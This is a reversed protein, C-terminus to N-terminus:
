RYQAKLQGWTTPTSPVICWSCGTGANLGANAEDDCVPQLAILCGPDDGAAYCPYGSISPLNAERVRFWMEETTFVLIGYTALVIAEAGPLPSALGVCFDPDTSVNIADGVLTWGMEFNGSPVSYDVHCEWGSVGSPATCETLVLYMTVPGGIFDHCVVLGDADFYMGIRDPFPDLQAIANSLCLLCLLGCLLSVKRM